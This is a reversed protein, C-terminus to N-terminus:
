GMRLIRKEKEALAEALGFGGLFLLFAGLIRFM